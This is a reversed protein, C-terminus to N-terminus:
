NGDDGEDSDSDDVEMDFLMVRRGSASLVVAVRRLGTVCLAQFGTRPLTRSQHILESVDIATSMDPASEILSQGVLSNTPVFVMSYLQPGDADSSELLMALTNSNYFMASVIKQCSADAYESKDVSEVKLLCYQPSVSQESLRLILAKEQDMPEVIMIMDGESSSFSSALRNINSIDKKPVCMLSQSRILEMSQSVVVSCHKFMVDASAYLAHLMQILSKRDYSQFVFDGVGSAEKGKMFETWCSPKTEPLMSLDKNELYQSVRELNFHTATGDAMTKPKLQLLFDAVQLVRDHSLQVVNPMEQNPDQLILIARYLVRLFGDLNKMSTRIVLSLEEVKLAFSGAQHLCSEVLQKSLGLVGFRDQWGAMGLLHSLRIILLHCASTLNTTAYNLITSYSSQISKGLKKLGKETLDVLLFSQLELSVSGCTLLALFEDQVSQGSPLKSAFGSLKSDIELVISDWADSMAEVVNSMYELVATVHVFCRSLHCLERRRSLMLSGKLQTFRICCSSEKENQEVLVASLVGLAKSLCISVVPSTRVSGLLLEEVVPFSGILLMGRLFVHVTGSENGVLLVDLCDDSNRVLKATASQWRADTGDDRTVEGPLAPLDKIMEESKDCYSFPLSTNFDTLPTDMWTMCTVSSSLKFEHFKKADEIEHFTIVRDTWGVALAKGDPRWTVATATNGRRACADMSWVRIWSLRYVCVEGTVLGLAILDMRPSWEMLSVEQPAFRESILKFAQGDM